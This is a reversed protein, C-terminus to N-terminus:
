ATNVAVSSFRVLSVHVLNVWNCSTSNTVRTQTVFNIPQLAATRALLETWDLEDATFVVETLQSLAISYVGAFSVPQGVSASAATETIKVKSVDYLNCTFPSGPVAMGGYALEVNYPGVVHGVFEAKYV